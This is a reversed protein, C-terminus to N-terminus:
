APSNAGPSSAFPEQARIVARAYVLLKGDVALVIVRPPEGAAAMRQIFGALVKNSPAARPSLPHAM